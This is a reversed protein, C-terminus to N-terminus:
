DEFTFIQSIGYGKAKFKANLFEVRKLKVKIVTLAIPLAALRSPRLGKMRLVDGFEQDEPGVMSATGSIQMGAITAMSEYEDYVALSVEPNVILNAFKRGGETLMYMCGNRYAYEIPTARVRNRSATALTCTNHAILFAEVQSKLHEKPMDGPSETRKLIELGFDM